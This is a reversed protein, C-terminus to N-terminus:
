ACDEILQDAAKMASVIQRFYTEVLSEMKEPAVLGAEADRMAKKLSGSVLNAIDGENIWDVLLGKSALWEKVAALMDRWLSTQMGAKNEGIAALVEHLFRENGALESDSKNAFETYNAKVGEWAGYAVSGKAKAMAVIRKKMRGWGDAGLMRELGYHEGIEHLLKGPADEATMRDSFLYAVGDAGYLASAGQEEALSRMADPADKLRVIKLVGASELAKIGREGFRDILAARIESPSVSTSKADKAFLINSSGPDFSGNNGTASKIQEPELAIWADQDKFETSQNASWDDHIIKIGDKGMEKLWKRYADVEEKGIMRGDDKGNALLRARRLMTAFHTEHPNQISLYVPYIAAGEGNGSYMEAGGNGPNTSFWSGVTDISHGRFRTTYLRDFATIDGMDKTRETFRGSTQAVHTGHYVILPDGNEDVVKSNGFWRKFAESDTQKEAKSEAPSSEFDFSLQRSFAPDSYAWKSTMVFPPNDGERLRKFISEVYDKSQQGPQLDNLREVVPKWGFMQAMKKLWSIVNQAAKALQSGIKVGPATREAHLEEALEALAEDVGRAAAIEDGYKKATALGDASDLWAETKAAIWPDARYLERMQAIYEKEPVFRRIGFHLLEHFLTSTVAEPTAVGSRVIHIRGRYVFGMTAGGDDGVAGAPLVDGDNDIITVPIETKFQKLLDTVQDVIQGTPLWDKEDLKKGEEKSYIPVDRAAFLEAVANGLGAEILAKKQREIGQAVLPKQEEPVAPGKAMLARRVANHKKRAEELDAANAFPQAAQKKMADADVLAKEINGLVEQEMAPLREIFNQMRTIFGSGSFAEEQGWSGISGLESKAYVTSGYPVEFFFRQGRFGVVIRSMADSRLLEFTFALKKAFEEPDTFEKGDISAKFDDKKGSPQGNTAAIMTRISAVTLPGSENAFFLQQRARHMMNLQEDAHSAQLRELRIVENRLKTEELIMPDGSAAAKMDAANAAEGDIDEIENISGDFNRLQEIGRAKHELIQWRRTDYTQETAYRGIFVEFGDPDRAYLENDRRIIRGERQELDSPRWPADIHHLAVLRKQVNTGAGMKPTSGLLFRIDGSNVAAFLKAKSTPTNYDHIFAIEREPVGRAILKAKIDDYVSFDGAGSAGQIDEKSFIDLEATDIENEDNYAATEEDTIEGFEDRIEMWNERSQQNNLLNAAEDKAEQRTAFGGYTMVGTTADYIDFRKDAKQGRQVVFFPIFEVGDAAHLTGRKMEVDGNDNRVYLRREKAAYSKKASLPISMDCFVLQAGKDAKWQDYIRMMENIALNIKSGPFDPAAPNILRFDLGAKNALNTLSLANIKGKSEKTLQRLNGFQGLISDPDVSVKPTIAREVIKLEADEKTDFLGLKRNESKGDEFEVNVAALWKGSKEDQEITPTLKAGVNLDFRINGGEDLEAKPVGMFNAVQPSRKAVINVPGGTAIKPVPFRLGRAEEQAKLDDLTVTDAFSNYYNMLAPLNAFKAFRTSQRYGSGSPAVEYVNEVNGFQKAWADFVHLGEKKLTPYQMFRQMNFMEVLSNSVPTGTATIFPTKEGFTDFLWRVKVFMDFAKASGAPNGMGPNRDMTSNYALNKFEHMEDVLMADIGLEDFTVVKDRKGIAALKDKMKAELTSRIREMDRVINRDGRERKMNEIAESVEDIQEQIIATETEVPLGIKKLSSHGIIVADWDGTIIKSFLRGRNEKSFDEPAAALINSGPYLRTFESRWQLTLHNPVVFLPKRAIGLRRMEMALAVMEFTKGAGVVHDYLTQYSQLGRWVGNKQHDLLTIAPNMGPFTMHSGDFKREVIRNMRENYIEAVKTAREPDKWLWTQWENRIANQKERAAETEKEMLVTTTSGDGNRIIKKIVVGRGQLSLEFLKQASADTTGFKGTNLVADPAENFNVIWQGTGKIYGIKAGAGTIHKIFDVYMEPPVFSAGISVNIESPKKDEPIVKELAAVNRAFRPDEAAAEKAEDLKTKVDGSLYEDATVFGSQPDEYVVDGLEELIESIPKAYVSEMYGRDIKGRYNLSALLADKATEVKMNDSPPFAVRRTFIDAKTASPDRQDIEEREAIAKSVGKDYDFELAQVLQAETDDLFIARNTQNNIHGFAKLFDDYASNLKARNGEIQEETADLSRELRMQARLLDRLGIMGKMRDVAKANKPEWPTATMEGLVDEGRQMVDGNPAVFYSGPKVGDPIAMDVVSSSKTREIPTYINAPLSNVWGILQDALDGTPEVTYENAAYQKGAASPKGLVFQPNKAFFQNVRHTVTEGTKPNINQQDVTGRWEAVDNPLGNADRKQFILIDTVVETGANEKFATNPLRAAGILAARDWIWKRAREDMADLFSHSVIIQMIGGPRLKDISKALFYNHISFGSYPSRDMDVIPEPGFPPNGIVADFFESPVSYDQFGTAKAIKAKPYLAAVFKSTLVDLEVGHLDSAARMDKPMLGFFNGVGVSPELIRGGKFGLQDFAEYMAKVAVPSTYHANLISKRAAKWEEETLLDKLEAHQKSWQKNNPDFVGKLAGWGVYKSIKRREEATSSRGESEIAKAIKIAEINDKYKQALGGKGIEDADIDFDSDVSGNPAAADSEPRVPRLNRTPGSPASGNPQVSGAGTGGTAESSGSVGRIGVAGQSNEDMGDGLSERDGDGSAANDGVRQSGIASVNGAPVPNANIEGDNRPSVEMTPSSVQNEVPSNANRLVATLNHIDALKFPADHAKGGKSAIQSVVGAREAELQELYDSVARVAAIHAADGDKMNNDASGRLIASEHESLGIKKLCSSLTGM